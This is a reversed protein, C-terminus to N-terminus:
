KEDGSSQPSSSKPRSGKQDLHGVTKLRQFMREVEAEDDPMLLPYHPPTLQKRDAASGPAEGWLQKYPIGDILAERSYRSVQRLLSRSSVSDGAHVVFVYRKDALTLRLILPISFLRDLRRIQAWPIARDGIKLHSEYVEISPGFAVLFVATASAVALGAAVWAYPWRLGVWVSFGAIALAVFGAWRFYLSARYRTIPLPV